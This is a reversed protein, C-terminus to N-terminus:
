PKKWLCALPPNARACVDTNAGSTRPAPKPQPGTATPTGASPPATWRFRDAARNFVFDSTLRSLREPVQAGRTARAVDRTVRKLVVEIDRGPAAMHRLLAATFPSNRGEGDAATKGSAAAFVLLTDPTRLAVKALGRPVAAGRSRGFISRQLREALPNDRCADLFTISIKAREEMARLVQQLPIAEQLLRAESRLAVTTPLLYNTGRLQLGHGAFYFLAVDAGVARQYFTELTRTLAGLDPDIAVIVDFGYRKLAASMARADNAPNALPPSSTYAAVGVVLAVRKAHAARTGADALTILALAVMMAAVLKRM